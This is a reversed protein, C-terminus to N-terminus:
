RRPTVAPPLTRGVAAGLRRCCINERSPRWHAHTVGGVSVRRVTAGEAGARVNWLAARRARDARRAAHEVVLAREGLPRTDDVDERQEVVALVAPAHLVVVEAAPRASTPLSETSTPGSRTASHYRRWM